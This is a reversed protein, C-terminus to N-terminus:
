GQATFVISIEKDVFIGRNFVSRQLGMMAIVPSIVSAAGVDPELTDMTDSVSLM